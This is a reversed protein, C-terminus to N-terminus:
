DEGNVRQVVEDYRVNTGSMDGLEVHLRRMRRLLSDTRGSEIETITAEVLQRSAYGYSARLSYRYAMGLGFAIFLLLALSVVGLAIRLGRHSFFESVVWSVCAALAVLLISFVGSNDMVIAEL